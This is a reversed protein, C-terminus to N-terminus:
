VSTRLGPPDTALESCILGLPYTTVIEAFGDLTNNTFHSPIKLVLDHKRNTSLGIIMDISTRITRAIHRQLLETSQKLKNFLLLNFM